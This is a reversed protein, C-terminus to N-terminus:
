RKINLLRAAAEQLTNKKKAFCVRVVKEDRKSNYFVSVPIVAVGYEITIRKAFDVDNEESINSYDLLQFYTGESQIVKFDSDKISELFYDRKEQFFQPLHLYKSEDKLYEALAYQIPTNVSFVNYQHVKRFEKTMFPPAVCYGMKWGTQHFTKGFSFIVYSKEVLEPYNLVSIHKKDDFVLHEYVEDSLIFIDRDRTIKILEQFDDDSWVKAIPNHPNNIIIMRTNGTILKKFQEWDVRYDPATLEYSKAIGGCLQVTPQYCDYAPEILIVEDGAKITATIANYIAQTAGATVTVNNADCNCNYTKNIKNSIAERLIPLGQMPAYQNHGKKMNENVLKVLENDGKFDPFGQSLNVANHENALQSMVTFITTGVSPLKSSFNM